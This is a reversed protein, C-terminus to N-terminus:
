EPKPTKEKSSLWPAALVLILLAGLFVYEGLHLTDRALMWTPEDEAGRYFALETLKESGLFIGLATSELLFLNPIARIPSVRGALAHYMGIFLTTGWYVTLVVAIIAHLEGTYPGLFRTCMWTTIGALVIGLITAALPFRSCFRKHLTYLGSAM